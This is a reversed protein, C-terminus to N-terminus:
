EGKLATIGVHELKNLYMEAYKFGNLPQMQKIREADAADLTADLLENFEEM